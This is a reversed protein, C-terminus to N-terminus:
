PLHTNGQDGLPGRSKRDVLASIGSVNVIGLEEPNVQLLDELTLLSSLDIKSLPMFALSVMELTSVSGWTCKM